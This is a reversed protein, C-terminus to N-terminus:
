LEMELNALLNQRPLARVNFANSRNEPPDFVAAAVDPALGRVVRAFEHRDAIPVATVQQTASKVARDALDSDTFVVLVKLATDGHTAELCCWGGPLQLLFVPYGWWNGPEPLSRELVVAAPYVHNSRLNGHADPLLDFMVVHGADRISRLFQRFINVRDFLKIQAQEGTHVLYKAVNAECTFIPFGFGSGKPQASNLDFILYESGRKLAFLPYQISFAQTAPEQRQM